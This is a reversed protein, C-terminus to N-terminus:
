RCRRTNAGSIFVVSIVGHASDDISEAAGGVTQM